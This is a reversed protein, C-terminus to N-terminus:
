CSFRPARSTTSRVGVVPDASGNTNPPAGNARLSSPHWNLMGMISFDSLHPQGYVHIPVGQRRAMRLVRGDERLDGTSVIALDAEGFDDAVAKRGEIVVDFHRAYREVDPESTTAILVVNESRVTALRILEITASSGGVVLVRERGFVATPRVENPVDVRM